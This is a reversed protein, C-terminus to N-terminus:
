WGQATLERVRSITAKFGKQFRKRWRESTLRKRKKGPREHFRQMQFDRRLGNQAVQVALMKFSRAVDVNNKVFVTRGTRPVMRLYAQPATPAEGRGYKKPKIDALDLLLDSAFEVPEQDDNEGKQLGFPLDYPSNNSKRNEIEAINETTRPTTWSSAYSKQQTKAPSTASSPSPRAPEKSSRLSSTTSMYNRGSVSGALILSRCPQSRIPTARLLTASRIAAQAVRGLEAM